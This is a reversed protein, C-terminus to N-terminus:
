TTSSAPEECGSPTCESNPAVCVDGSDEPCAGCADPDGYLNVCRKGTGRCHVQFVYDTDKWDQEGLHCSCNAPDCHLDPNDTDGHDQAESTVFDCEEDDDLKNDGCTTSTSTDTDLATTTGTASDSGTTSGTSASAGSGSSSTSSGTSSDTTLASTSTSAAVSTSPLSSADSTALTGNTTSSASAEGSPPGCTGDYCVLPVACPCHSGVGPSYCGALALLVVGSTM